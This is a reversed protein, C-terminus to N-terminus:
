IRERAAGSRTNAGLCEPPADVKGLERGCQNLRPELFRELQEILNVVSVVYRLSRVEALERAVSRVLVLYEPLLLPPTSATAHDEWETVEGDVVHHWLTLAARVVEVVQLKQAPRAVRHLAFPWM